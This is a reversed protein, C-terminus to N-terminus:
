PNENLVSTLAENSMKAWEDTAINDFMTEFVEKAYLNCLLNTIEGVSIAEGCEVVDVDDPSHPYNHVMVSKSLGWGDLEIEGKISKVKVKTKYIDWHDVSVIDDVAEIKANPFVKLM